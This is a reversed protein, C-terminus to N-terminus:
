PDCQRKTRQQICRIFSRWARLGAAGVLLVAVMILGYRLCQKMLRRREMELLISAMNKYKEDDM